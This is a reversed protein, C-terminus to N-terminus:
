YRLTPQFTTGYFNGDSGKILLGGPAKGDTSTAGFSYLDQATATLAQTNTGGGGCSGLVPVLVGCLLIKLRATRV